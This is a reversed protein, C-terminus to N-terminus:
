VLHSSDLCVANKGSGLFISLYHSSVKEQIIKWGIIIFEGVVILRLRMSQRSVIRWPDLEEGEDGDDVRDDGEEVLGEILPTRALNIGKGEQLEGAAFRSRVAGHREPETM